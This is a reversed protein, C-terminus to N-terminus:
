VNLEYIIRLGELTLFQNVTWINKIYPSVLDAMGGTAIVKPTIGAEKKIEKIIREVGGAHGLVLGALINEKTDRGIMREPSKIKVLPLKATNESLAKASIGIGPMIAGGRYEGNATVVCLTTATGFDVVILDGKYLKHAGAAAAIRDAGLNEPNKIKFKLGTKIKSSVVLPEIRFIKKIAASILPTVKPVVSCIAAGALVRMRYKKIFSKLLSSYKDTNADIATKFKLVHKIGKDYLGITTNTNGIDILLLM